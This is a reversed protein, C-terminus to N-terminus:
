SDIAIIDPSALYMETESVTVEMNTNYDMQDQRVMCVNLDTWTLIENEPKVNGM